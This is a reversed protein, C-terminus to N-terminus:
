KYLLSQSIVIWDPSKMLGLNEKTDYQMLNATMSVIAAEKVESTNVFWQKCARLIVPEKTRWDYPYSHEFEEEHLIHDRLLAM